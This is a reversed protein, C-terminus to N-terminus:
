ASHRMVRGSAVGAGQFSFAAISPDLIAAVIGDILLKSEQRGPGKIACEWVTGTRWGLAVLAEENKLDRDINRGIKSQWFEPRTKPWHFLTCDHGHWFCGNVFLVAHHRPLVVDPKGPLKKEHLRFRFGRAHLGRRILMEPKTDSGKIAAM